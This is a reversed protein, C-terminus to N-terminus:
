MKFTIYIPLFRKLHHYNNYKLSTVIERTNTIKLTSCRLVEDDEGGLDQHLPRAHARALGDLLRLVHAVHEHARVLQAHHAHGVVLVRRADRVGHHLPAALIECTLGYDCCVSCCKWKGSDM